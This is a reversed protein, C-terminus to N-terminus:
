RIRVVRETVTRGDGTLRLLYIGGPLARGADDTGDWSLKGTVGPAQLTRVMRGAVDYIAVSVGGTSATAGLKYGITTGGTFPNPVTWLKVGSAVVEGGAAQPDECGVPWAGILGCGEQNCPSYNWLHYDGDSTPAETCEMPGCFRPDGSFSSEDWTVIGAGEIGGRDADCCSLSVESYQEVFIQDGELSACNGWVISRSLHAEAMTWITLGGGRGSRNGAITSGQIEVSSYESCSIGGGANGTVTCDILEMSSHYACCLAGDDAWYGSSSNGRCSSNEIVVQSHWNCFVGAFGWARNGELTCHRLKLTSFECSLAGGYGYSTPVLTQNLSVVSSDVSATSEYFYLGGGEWTATNETISCSVVTPSSGSAYIGGGYDARNGDLACDRITPAAGADCFIGGGGNFGNCATIRCRVISPSASRCVIGGGTETFWPPIGNRITIAELISGAGEGTHFYAGRYVAEGDIVVGAPDGNRSRITIAKGRYDLDCNGPGRFLGEELQIIDGTSAADIGAQITPFDGTGDPRVLYTTASAAAPWLLVACLAMAAFRM